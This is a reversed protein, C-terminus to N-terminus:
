WLRSVGYRDLVSDASLLTLGECLAQAVLLRDFPDRHHFPLHQVAFTHELEIPLLLIGQDAMQRTVLDKLPLTLELKGLGAKISMEWVSATSLLLQNDNELFVSRGTESMGPADTIAWLFAHTDLLFRNGDTMM